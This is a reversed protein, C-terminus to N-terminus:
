APQFYRVAGTESRASRELAELEAATLPEDDYPALIDLLAIQADRFQDDTLQEVLAHIEERLGM